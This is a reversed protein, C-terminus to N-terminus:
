KKKYAQKRKNFRRFSSNESLSEKMAEEDEIEWIEKMDVDIDEWANDTFHFSWKYGKSISYYDIVNPNSPSETPNFLEGQKGYGVITKGSKSYKMTYTYVEKTGNDYNIGYIFSQQNFKMAIGKAESVQINLILFSHEPPMKIITGSNDEVELQGYQGRIQVYPIHFEVSDGGKEIANITGSKLLQKLEAVKQKNYSLPNSLYMERESDSLVKLNPNEPTLIVYTLVKKKTNLIVERAKKSKDLSVYEDNEVKNILQIGNSTSEVSIETLNYKFKLTDLFTRVMGKLDKSLDKYSDRILVQVGEYYGSALEILKQNGDQIAYKNDVYIDYNPNSGYDEDYTEENYSELSTVFENIDKELEDLQYSDLVAFDTDYDDDGYYSKNYEYEDETLGVLLPLNEPSPKFNATGETLLKKNKRKVVM